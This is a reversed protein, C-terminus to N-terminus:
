GWQGWHQLVLGPCGHGITYPFTAVMVVAAVVLFVKKKFCCAVTSGIQLSNKLIFLLDKHGSNSVLSVSNWILQSSVKKKKKKKKLSTLKTVKM